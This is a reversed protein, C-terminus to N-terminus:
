RPHCGYCMKGGDMGQRLLFPTASTHPHHCTTCVIAGGAGLHRTWEEDLTVRATPVVGVPHEFEKHRESHCSTCLELVGQRLLRGQGSSHPEHCTLCKNERVPFHVHKDGRIEQERHCRM